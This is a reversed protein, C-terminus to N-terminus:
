FAIGLVLRIAQATALSASSLQQTEGPLYDLGALPFFVGYQLM